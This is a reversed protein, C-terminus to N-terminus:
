GQVLVLIIVAVALVALYLLLSTKSTADKVQARLHKKLTSLRSQAVPAAEM